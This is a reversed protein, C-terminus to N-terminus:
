EITREIIEILKTRSIPKEIVGIAGADMMDKGKHSAYATIALIKANEDIEKIKRTAEIGDMVPMMVDMLVVDPKYVAYLNVGEEGNKATIVRFNKSLMVELVELVSQDDDVILVTKMM